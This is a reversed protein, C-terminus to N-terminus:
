ALPDCTLYIMWATSEFRFAVLLSQGICGFIAGPHFTIITVVYVSSRRPEKSHPSNAGHYPIGTELLRTLDRLVLQLDTMRPSVHIKYVM